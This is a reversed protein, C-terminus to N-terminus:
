IAFISASPALMDSVTPEGQYDIFRELLTEQPHLEIGSGCHWELSFSM